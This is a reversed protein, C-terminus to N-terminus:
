QHLLGRDPQLVRGQGHVPLAHGVETRHETIDAPWLENAADASFNQQVLDDHVPPGPKKGRKNGFASWWGNSSWVRWVWRESADHGADRAEDALYRYGFEPDDRHAEFLANAVYAEALEADTVLRELWRYWPQRAIRLVRCRVAVLIGDAAVGSVLPDM